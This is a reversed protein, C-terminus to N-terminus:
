LQTNNAVLVTGCQDVSHSCSEKAFTGSHQSKALVSTLICCPNAAEVKNAHKANNGCIFMSLNLRQVDYVDNSDKWEVQLQRQFETFDSDEAALKCSLFGRPSACSLRWCIRFPEHCRVNNKVHIENGFPSGEADYKCTCVNSVNKM